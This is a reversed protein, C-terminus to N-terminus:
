ALRKMVPAQAEAIEPMEPPPSFDEARRSSRTRKPPRDTSQYLNALSLSARLDFSRSDQEDDGFIACERRDAREHGSAVSRPRTAPSAPWFRNLDQLPSPSFHSIFCTTGYESTEKGAGAVM